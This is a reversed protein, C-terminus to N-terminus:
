FSGVMCRAACGQSRAGVMECRSAPGLFVIVDAKGRSRSCMNMADALTIRPLAILFVLGPAQFDGRFSIEHFLFWTQIGRYTWYGGALSVCAVCVLTSSGLGLSVM